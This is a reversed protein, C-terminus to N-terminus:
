GLKLSTDSSDDSELPPGNTSKNSGNTISEASLGNEYATTESSVGNRKLQSNNSM